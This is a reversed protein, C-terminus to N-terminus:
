KALEEALESGAFVKGGSMIMSPMWGGRMVFAEAGERSWPACPMISDGSKRRNQDWFDGNQVLYDVLEEGTAFPPTVPTGESVTEYVQFWTAKGEEWHPMYDDVSPANGSWEAFYKYEKCAGDKQDPHEGKLWQQHDEIWETIADIYSGDYLPKYQDEMLGTRWNPKSVKPHEWNPIVKRIERGM